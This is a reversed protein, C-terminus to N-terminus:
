VLPLPNQLDCWLFMSNCIQSFQECNDQIPISHFFVAMCHSPPFCISVWWEIYPKPWDLLSVVVVDVGSGFLKIHMNFLSVFLSSFCSCAWVYSLSAYPLRLHGIQKLLKMKNSKTLIIQMFNFHFQNQSHQCHCGYQSNTRHQRNIKGNTETWTFQNNLWKATRAISPQVAKLLVVNNCLVFVCM